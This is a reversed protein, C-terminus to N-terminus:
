LIKFNKEILKIYHLLLFLLAILLIDRKAIRIKKDYNKQSQFENKVHFIKYHPVKSIICLFITNDPLKQYFLPM